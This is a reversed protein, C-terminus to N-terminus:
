ELVGENMLEAIGLSTYGLIEELVYATHEGLRPSRRLHCPTKLFLFPYAFYHFPGLYAFSVGLEPHEVDVWFERAQLQPSRLVEEIDCVPYLM